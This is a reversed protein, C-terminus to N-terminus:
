KHMNNNYHTLTLSTKKKLARLDDLRTHKFMVTTRDFCFTPIQIRIIISFFFLLFYFRKGFPLFVYVCIFGVFNVRLLTKAHYTYEESKKKKKTSNRCSVSSAVTICSSFALTFLFFFLLFCTGINATYYFTLACKNYYYVLCARKLFLFIVARIKM